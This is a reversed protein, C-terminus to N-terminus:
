TIMSLLFFSMSSLGLAFLLLLLLLLTPERLFSFSGRILMVIPTSMMSMPNNQRNDIIDYRMPYLSVPLQPSVSPIYKLSYLKPM